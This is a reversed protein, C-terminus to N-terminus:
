IGSKFFIKLLWEVSIDPISPNLGHLIFLLWEAFICLILTLNNSIPQVYLLLTLYVSRSVKDPNKQRSFSALIKM